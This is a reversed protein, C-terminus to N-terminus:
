GLLLGDAIVMGGSAACCVALALRSSLRANTSDEASFLESLVLYVGHFIGSLFAAPLAWYPSVGFLIFAVTLLLNLATSLTALNHRGEWAEITAHRNAILLRGALQGGIDGVMVLPIGLVVSGFIATLATTFAFDTLPVGFGIARGILRAAFLATGIKVLVGGAQTLPSRERNEFLLLAIGCMVSCLMLTGGFRGFLLEVLDYFPTDPHYRRPMYASGTSTTGYVLPTAALM